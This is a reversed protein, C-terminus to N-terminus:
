SSIYTATLPTTLFDLFAEAPCSGSVINVKQEELRVEGNPQTLLLPGLDHAQLGQGNYVCKVFGFACTLKVQGEGTVDALEHGLRLVSITAPGNQETVTCSSNCSSYTFNGTIIAPNGLKATGSFLVNCEINFSSTLLTAKGVSEGHVSTILNNVCPSENDAKCLATSGEALASPAGVLAIVAAAGLAALGILKTTKM